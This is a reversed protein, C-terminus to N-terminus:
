KMSLATSRLLSYPVCCPMSMIYAPFFSSLDKWKKRSDGFFPARQTHERWGDGALGAPRGRETRAGDAFPWRVILRVQAGRWVVLWRGLLWSCFWFLRRQSCLGGETWRVLACVILQSYLALDFSAECILFSFWAPHHQRDTPRAHHRDPQRPHRRPLHDGNTTCLIIHQWSTTNWWTRQQWDISSEGRSYKAFILQQCKKMHVDQAWEREM